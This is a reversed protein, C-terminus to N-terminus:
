LDRENEILKRSLQSCFSFLRNDAAASDGKDPSVESQIRRLIRRLNPLEVDEGEEQKKTVMQDAERIKERVVRDYRAREDSGLSFTRTNSVLRSYEAYLSSAEFSLDEEARKTDHAASADPSEPIDSYSGTQHSRRAYGWKRETRAFKQATDGTNDFMEGLPSGYGYLMDHIFKNVSRHTLGILEEPLRPRTLDMDSKVQYADILDEDGRGNSLDLSVESFCQRAYYLIASKVYNGLLEQPEPLRYKNLYGEITADFQEQTWRIERRNVANALKKIRSEKSPREGKGRIKEVTYELSDVAASAAEARLVDPSGFSELLSSFREHGANYETYTSLSSTEHQMYAHFAEVYQEYDASDPFIGLAECEQVFAREIQPMFPDKFRDAYQGALEKVVGMIAEDSIKSETTHDRIQTELQSLRASSEPAIQDHIVQYRPYYVETPQNTLLSGALSIKHSHENIM